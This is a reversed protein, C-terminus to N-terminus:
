EVQRMEEYFDTKTFEQMFRIAASANGCAKRKNSDTVDIRFFSRTGSRAKSEECWVLKEVGYKPALLKNNKDLWDTLLRMTADRGVEEGSSNVVMELKSRARKRSV